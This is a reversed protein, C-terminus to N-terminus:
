PVSKLFLVFPVFADRFIREEFPANIGITGRPLNQMGLKLKNIALRLLNLRGKFYTEYFENM